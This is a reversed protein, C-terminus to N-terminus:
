ASGKLIGELWDAHESPLGQFEIGAIYVHDGHDEGETSWQVNAKVQIRPYDPVQFGEITLCLEMQIEEGDILPRDSVLRCGGRSVDQTSAPILGRETHVRAGFGLEYRPHARRDDPYSAM